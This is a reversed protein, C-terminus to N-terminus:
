CPTSLTFLLATRGQKPFIGPHAERSQSPTSPLDAGSYWRSGRGPQGHSNLSHSPFVDTWLKVTRRAIPSRRTNIWSSLLPLLCVLHADVLAMVSAWSEMKRQSCASTRLSSSLLCSMKGEGNAPLHWPSVLPFAFAQCWTVVQSLHGEGQWTGPFSAQIRGAWCEQAGSQQTWYAVSARIVLSTILHGVELIAKAGLSSQLHRPHPCTPYLSAPGWSRLNKPTPLTWM